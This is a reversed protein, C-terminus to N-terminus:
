GRQRLTHVAQMKQEPTHWLVQDVGPTRHGQNETVRQVALVKASYSHTLLLQLATVKGWRGEQTAQGIRAQLRRVTRHAQYWNSSHWTEPIHSAAGASSEVAQATASPAVM